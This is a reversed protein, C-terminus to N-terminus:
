GPKTPVAATVPQEVKAPKQAVKEVPAKAVNSEAAVKPAPNPAVANQSAQVNTSLNSLNTALQNIQKDAPTQVPASQNAPLIKETPISANQNNNNNNYQFSQQHQQQQAQNM